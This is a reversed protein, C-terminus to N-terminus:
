PLAQSTLLVPVSSGPCMTDETVRCDYALIEVGAAAAESLVAAFEPHTEENPAFATVPSMQILFLAAAKYGNETARILGKLHKIGRETPADPFLAM